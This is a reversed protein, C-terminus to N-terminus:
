QSPSIAKGPISRSILDKFGMDKGALHKTTFNLSLLRDVWRTLRSHYTKNGHNHSLEILLTKHDTITEFESGKPYNEFHKVAWVVELFELENTSNKSKHPNLFRSAFSGTKWDTM